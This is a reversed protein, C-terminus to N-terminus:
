PVRPRVYSANIHEEEYDLLRSIGQRVPVNPQAMHLDAPREYQAWTCVIRSYSRTVDRVCKM